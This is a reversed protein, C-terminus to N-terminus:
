TNKDHHKRRDGVAACLADCVALQVLRAVIPFEGERAETSAFTLCIDCLRPIKANEFATICSLHVGRERAATVAELIEETSGSYTIAILHDSKGLASVALRPDEAAFAPIGLRLLYGALIQAIQGSTHRGCIVVRGTTGALLDALQLLAESNLTGVSQELSLKAADAIASFPSTNEACHYRDSFKGSAQAIGVKLEIYGEYGLSRAFNVVSGESVGVRKSFEKLKLSTAATPDSLIFDAIRQWTKAREPRQERITKFLM